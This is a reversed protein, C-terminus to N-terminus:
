PAGGIYASRVEQNAFVDEPVGAAILRGRDMVLLRSALRALAPLNHEVILFGTGAGALTRIRDAIQEILVANVGAFPEDLLIYRPETMLARGLELLKQQGGSLTAAAAAAVHQLGLFALLADAKGELERERRRVAGPRCFLNLVHEGPQRPGAAMLNARVSLHGFPRPVQFTRAIGRRARADPPLRGIEEGDFRVTGGDQKQYGSVVAFLTSKGAGNPGILGTIVDGAAEFTVDEVVSLGGFSKRLRSVALSM